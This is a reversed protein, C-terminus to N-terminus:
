LACVYIGECNVGKYGEMCTCIYAGNAETCIGGNRCPNPHCKNEEQFFFLVTLFSCGEINCMCLTRNIQTVLVMSFSNQFASILSLVMLPLFHIQIKLM